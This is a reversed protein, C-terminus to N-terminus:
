CGGPLFDPLDKGQVRRTQTIRRVKGYGRKGSMFGQKSPCVFFGTVYCLFRYAAYVFIYFRFFLLLIKGKTLFVTVPQRVIGQEPRQLVIEM